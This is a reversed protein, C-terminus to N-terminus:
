YERRNKGYKGADHSWDDYDGIIKHFLASVFYFLVMFIPLGTIAGVIYSLIYGM